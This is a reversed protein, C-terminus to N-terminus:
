KWNLDPTFVITMKNSFKLLEERVDDVNIKSKPIILYSSNTKLKLYFYSMTEVINEIEKLNIKSEGATSSTEIFEDTFKINIIQNIKNQHTEKILKQHSRKYKWKYYTPYFIFYLVSFCLFYYTLIINGSQYFMLSLSLYALTWIIWSKNRQKKIKESKSAIFLRCQLFDNENLLFTLTM